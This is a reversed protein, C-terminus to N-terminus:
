RAASGGELFSGMRRFKDYRAALRAEAPLAGVAALAQAIAEGVVRAAHEPDRHAGGAPEAIM